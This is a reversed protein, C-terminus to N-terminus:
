NTSRPRSQVERTSAEGGTIARDESALTGEARRLMDQAFRESFGAIFAFVTYFYFQTAHDSPAEVHFIGSALVFYLFLGFVIGIVPRFAGVELIQRRNTEYNLNLRDRTMRMMVSVMAGLAGGFFSGLLLNLHLGHPSVSALIAGFVCGLVAMVGLGVFMGLVYTSDAARKVSRLYFDNADQLLGWWEKLLHASESSDPQPRIQGQESGNTQSGAALDDLRATADTAVWYILDLCVLLHSGTLLENAKLALRKCEYLLSALETTEQCDAMAELVNFVIHLEPNPHEGSGKETLAIASVFNGAAYLKLIKGHTLEFASYIEPLVAEYKTRDEDNENSTKQSNFFVIVFLDFSASKSARASSIEREHWEYRFRAPRLGDNGEAGTVARFSVKLRGRNGELHQRGQGTSVM